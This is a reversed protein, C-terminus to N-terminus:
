CRTVDHGLHPVEQFFQNGARVFEIWGPRRGDAAALASVNVFEAVHGTVIAVARPQKHIRSDGADNGFVAGGDPDDRCIHVRSPRNAPCGRRLGYCQRNRAAAKACRPLGDPARKVVAAERPSLEARM